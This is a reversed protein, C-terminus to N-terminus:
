TQCMSATSTRMFCMSLCPKAGRAEQRPEAVLNSASLTGRALHHVLAPSVGHMNAHQAPSLKATVIMEDHSAQAAPTVADEIMDVDSATALHPICEGNPQIALAHLPIDLNM